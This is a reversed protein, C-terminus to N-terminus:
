KLMGQLLSASCLSHLTSYNEQLTATNQLSCRSANQIHSKLHLLCLCLWIVVDSVPLLQPFVHMTNEERRKFDGQLYIEGAEGGGRRGEDKKVKIM